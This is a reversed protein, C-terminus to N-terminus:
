CSTPTRQRGKKQIAPWEDRVWQDIAVPNRERSRKVPKQPSYGRNALWERLYGPHYAVGFQRRILEAVRRATWLDTRFGHATPKDALWGLVRAEQAPTLLSPRGPHPKSALGATGSARHARVWRGVSVPHVGLFEAVDVQSWGDNVREVALRRRAEMDAYTTTGDM